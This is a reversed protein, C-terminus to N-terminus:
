RGSHSISSHEYQSLVVIGTFEPHSVSLLDVILMVWSNARRSCPNELRNLDCRDVYPPPDHM